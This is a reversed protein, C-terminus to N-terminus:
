SLRKARLRLEDLFAQLLPSPKGRWLAGVIVPPFESKPLVLARISPNLKSKPVLVSLGIGFGGAVYTEVLDISSVEIGAFWDVGLRRLGQQFHKCIMEAQPMSILPHAIRDQRWLLEASTISSNSEVLLALSLELLAVSRIGPASKKELLTVALDLEERQLMGELEAQSGEHLAIKLQPYKARITRFFEPLHDRLVITSAGVRIQHPQGGQLEGAVQDLNAFFPQIFKYLKEGPPTLLFPRRQFLTVGLYEELQAVQGSVAPQQIGYPINRVAESIGGHRAVFYFLELHHINM